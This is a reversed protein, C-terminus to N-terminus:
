TTIVDLAARVVLCVEEEGEKVEEEKDAMDKATNRHLPVGPLSHWQMGRRFPEGTDAQQEPGVLQSECESFHEGAPRVEGPSREM